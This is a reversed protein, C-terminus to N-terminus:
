GNSQGGSFYARTRHSFCEAIKEKWDSGFTTTLGLLTKHKLM